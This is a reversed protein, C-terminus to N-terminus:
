EVTKQDGRLRDYGGADTTGDAEFGAERLDAGTESRHDAGREFQPAAIHASQDAAARRSGDAGGEACRQGAGKIGELQDDAGVRREPERRDNRSRDAANKDDSAQSKVLAEDALERRDGLDRLGVEGREEHQRQKAGHDADADHPRHSEDFKAELAAVQRHKQLRGYAPENEAAQREYRGLDKGRAM